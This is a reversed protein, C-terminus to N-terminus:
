RHLGNYDATQMVDLNFDTWYIRRLIADVTLGAPNGINGLKLDLVNTGDM